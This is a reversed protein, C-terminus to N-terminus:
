VRSPCARLQHRLMRHYARYAIRMWKSGHMRVWEGRRRGRAQVAGWFRIRELDHWVAEGDPLYNAIVSEKNELDTHILRLYERETKRDM